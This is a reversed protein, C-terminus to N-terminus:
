ILKKLQLQQKTLQYKTTLFLSRSEMLGYILLSIKLYQLKQYPTIGGYTYATVRGKSLYNWDFPVSFVAIKDGAKFDNAAYEDM